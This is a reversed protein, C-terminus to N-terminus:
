SKLTRCFELFRQEEARVVEVPGTMKVCVIHTPLGCYVALMGFDARPPAAMAAYTGELKVLRAQRGLMPIEPLEELGGGPLRQGMQGFWRAINSLEDGGDPRQFVYVVCETSDDEGPHFTAARMSSGEGETWSEPAQWALDFSGGAAPASEQTPQAPTAAASSSGPRVTACLEAFQARAGDVVEAPGVMKISYANEGYDLIVGVLRFGERPTQDGMGRFTGDVVVETAQEGFLSVKPLAAVQEASLPGAGMQGRWRNINEVMKGGGGRLVSFYCEAEPDGAVWYNLQRMSTSPRQVWSSPVDATWTREAEPFGLRQRTSIPQHEWPTVPVYERVDTIQRESPPEACAASLVALSFVSWRTAQSSVVRRCGSSCRLLKVM